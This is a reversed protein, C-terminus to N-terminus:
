REAFPKISMLLITSQPFRIALSPAALENCAPEAGIADHISGLTLDEYRALRKSTYHIATVSSYTTKADNQGHLLATRCHFSRPAANLRIDCWAGAEM